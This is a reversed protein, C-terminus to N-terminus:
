IKFFKLICIEVLLFLIALGLFWKFLTKIEEQEQIKSFTKEINNSITINKSDKFISDLNSYTLNNEIRNYNFAITRIIKNAKKITYFGSKTIEEGLNLEIKNNFTTQRPILNQNEIVIELVEDNNTQTDIDISNNEGATYYLQPIKFSYKAFNYFIPVILPSNQFNSVQKSLPANFLYVSSNKQKVESIFTDNNDFKLIPSSNTLTSKYHQNVTPYDFNKVQKEFVNKLIPHQYNIENITLKNKVENIVKGINLTKYLANYSNLDTKSSPIIVLSGGNKSFNVLQNILKSPIEDIENLVILHQKKIINYDLNNLNKDIYDFENKTYIKKLYNAQKGIVLVSIKKPSSITFFLENDFSLNSDNIKIIGNINKQNQIKFEIVNSKNKELTTSVKSMLISGNYLSVPVSKQETNTNNIIVKLTLEKNNKESVFVSDISINFNSNSQQKILSISSNVNTVSEKKINNINQFDSILILKNLSNTKNFKLQEAKLLITSFNVKNTSFDTKILENKLEKADINKFTKDNTILSVVDDNKVNNIINQITNKLIIGDKGKAQMSLSNDLYLIKHFKKEISNNSFYPQSFALILASFAILRTLLILWKKLRSSKRTKLEIQKLFEVNTFPTKKFRQLQFLHVIIPIILLILAFLIEPHKFQM